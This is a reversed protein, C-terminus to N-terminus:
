DDKEKPIVELFAEVVRPDLEKGKQSKIMKLAKQDSMAKRYPRDSTLAEYRDALALIRSYLSINDGSLGEPYGSGDINEHHQKVLLMIDTYQSIPELIKAGQSPHTEVTKREEPTLSGCKDLIENPIGLKGIDHLLGGRHLIDMEQNSLGIVRGISLALGTVRESHGATWHTKADISRALALLTGWSFEKIEEILRTNSLAVGVQNSLGRLQNLDDQSLPSRGSYGVSIIGALEQKLVIPFVRFSSLGKDQFPALYPPLPQDENIVFSNPNDKLAQIEVPTLQIDEVFSQLTPNGFGAYIQGVDARKPNLLTISVDKIPFVESIRLILTNVIKDINRASLISRDIEAMASLTKFQKGLQSTMANFSDALAGFEDRNKVFVRSEFDRKAIRQAGEKLKELPVLSRRIQSVSLFLVVWLSLLIVLPFNKRFYAIPAYVYSKAESVVVRWKPSAFRSQLFIDRLGALFRKGGLTWEFYGSSTGELEQRAREPLHIPGGYSSFLVQDSHDLVSLETMPPLSHKGGQLWVYLPEVEAVLLDLDSNDPKLAKVMSICSMGEAQYRTSIVTEGRRLSQMEEQSMEPWSQIDGFISTSEGKSTLLAIGKFREMLYEDLDPTKKLLIPSRTDIYTTMRMLESELFMLREFISLAMTKSTQYMRIQSQERLHDSVQKFSLIALLAIPILACLIFLLTIRHAVRSRLFARDWKM